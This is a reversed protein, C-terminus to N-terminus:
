LKEGFLAGVETGYPGREQYGRHEARKAVLQWSVHSYTYLCWINM